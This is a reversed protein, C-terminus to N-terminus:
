ASNLARRRVRGRALGIASVALPLATGPSPVTVVFDLIDITPEGTQQAWFSYTGAPLPPTFGQGNAGMLPLLDLGVQDAGFHLWGLLDGPATTEPDNPFTPGPQIGLFAVPDSSLYQELIIASLTYGAPM